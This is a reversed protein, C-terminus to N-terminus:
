EGKLALLAGLKSYEDKTLTGASKRYLKLIRKLLVKEAKDNVPINETSDVEQSKAKDDSVMDDVMNMVEQANM